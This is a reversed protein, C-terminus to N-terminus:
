ITVIECSQLAKFLEQKLTKFTDINKEKDIFGNGYLVVKVNELLDFVAIYGHLKLREYSKGSTRPKLEKGTLNLQPNSLNFMAAM